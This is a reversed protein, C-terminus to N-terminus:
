VLSLVSNAISLDPDIKFILAEFKELLFKGGKVFRKEERDSMDFFFLVPKIKTAGVLLNNDFTLGVGPGFTPIHGRGLDRGPVLGHKIKEKSGPAVPFYEHYFM